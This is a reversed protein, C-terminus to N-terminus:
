VSNGQLSGALLGRLAALRSFGQWRREGLQRVPWVGILSNCLGVEEAALLHGLSVDTEEVQLGLRPAQLLLLDRMVGAVGCRQLSPTVLRGASLLLLNSMTGEIVAGASDLLVGEQIQPDQWENRALVNELRNLHKIGALRPQHALRIDCVRVVVGDSTWRAPYDPLSAPLVLWRYSAPEPFRYGRQGSGRTVMLKLVANQEGALALRIAALWQGETPCDLLLASCDRKLRQLQWPWWDLQGGRCVLTRFVGDGYALGRDTAPLGLAPQGDVVPTM